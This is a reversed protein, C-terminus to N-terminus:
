WSTWGGDVVLSQGTVYSAGDSLLFLTPGVIEESAGIRGLATKGALDRIPPFGGLPGHRAVDLLFEAAIELAADEAKPEATGEARAAALPKDHGEGALSPADAGGTVTPM